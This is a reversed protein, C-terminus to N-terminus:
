KQQGVAGTSQESVSQCADSLGSKNQRLCSEVQTADPIYSSCLKFLTPRARLGRSPPAM